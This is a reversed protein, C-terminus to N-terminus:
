VFLCACGILVVFLCGGFVMTKEPGKRLIATTPYMMGSIKRKGPHSDKWCPSAAKSDMGRSPQTCSTARTPACSAHPPPPFSAHLKEARTAPPVPIWQSLLLPKWAWLSDFRDGGHLPYLPPSERTDGFHPPLGLVRTWPTEGHTKLVDSQPSSFPHGIRKWRIQTQWPELHNSIGPQFTSLPHFNMKLPNGLKGCLDCVGTVVYFHSGAGLM